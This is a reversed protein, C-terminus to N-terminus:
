KRVEYVIFGNDRRNRLEKLEAHFELPKISMYPLRIQDPPKNWIEFYKGKLNSFSEPAELEVRGVFRFEKDQFVEWEEIIPESEPAKVNNLSEELRLLDNRLGEAKKKLHYPSLNGAEAETIFENILKLSKDFKLIFNHFDNTM